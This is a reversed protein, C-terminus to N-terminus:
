ELTLEIIHDTASPVSGLKLLVGDSDQSFPLPEGTNVCTASVVKGATFPVYVSDDKWSLIHVYRVNDKRTMVGWDRFPMEGGRTGYITHGYKELWEGMGRLEEVAIDPLTGDPRPGVNLLLNADRGATSVLYRILTPVDKYRTDRINYGWSGNMTECTELPLASIEAAKEAFGTTNEGPLDKEFIQIDEGPFPVHHHNNGVLVDPRLEHILGYLEDYRWNFDPHEDQDWDGDFWIARVVNGYNTLLETLQNKMFTFYSDEDVTELPRGCNLGTRGRPADERGWDILSYYFHLALGQKECEEALEKLVDRKFPTADVVNYPSYKTSFMSFGDHHRSTITIYKAGSAKFAAVWEAANFSCPDFGRALKAYEQYNLNFNTQVWEGAGLMSYIGWHIFIGFREAQFAERNALCEASPVYDQARAFSPSLLAIFALSLGLSKINLTKTM